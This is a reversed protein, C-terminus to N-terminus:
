CSSIHYSHLHQGALPISGEGGGRHLLGWALFYLPNGPYPQLYVGTIIEGGYRICGGNQGRIQQPVPLATSIPPLMSSDAYGAAFAKISLFLIAFAMFKTKM